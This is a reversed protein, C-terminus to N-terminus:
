VAHGGPDADLMEMYRIPFSLCSRLFIVYFEM